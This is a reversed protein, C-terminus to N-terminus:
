RLEVELIEEISSIEKALLPFNLQKPTQIVANIEIGHAHSNKIIRISSIAIQYKALIAEIKGLIGPIDKTLIFLNKAAKSGIFIKEVKNLVALAVIIILTALLSGYFFGAGIGLGIGATTWLSTATTLGKISAGFRLIAGAGLFGVGTVVQAAIRTPDSNRSNGFTEAMYISILTILTAGLCLIMHTRFGAPQNHRERELGVVGGLIASAILRIFIDNYSPLAVM